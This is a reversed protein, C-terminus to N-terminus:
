LYKERLLSSVDRTLELVKTALRLSLSGTGCSPTILTQKLLAAKDRKADVLLAAQEEWRDVLSAASEMEIDAPEGTPVIGWAIIGGRDLFGDIGQRCTVFRDFYNYADFSIIDITSNLLINWDTNACVHVGSLGGAQRVADIVEALDGAIDDMSVSIFASSGLGALAPEDIFLLVPVGPAAKKFTLVQWAAKMALGKVVMDRITPDYYGLRNEQDHIGTLQTFPGTVQAKIAKVNKKDALNEALGYIGAARSRSVQFRSTLLADPDEAAALFEEYFALQQDAFEPAATSFYTREGEEVVGPLGEVFQNLMGERTSGPLQPWIPIEPTHGFVLSLAQALDKVPLSGILTPLGGPQWSQSQSTTM